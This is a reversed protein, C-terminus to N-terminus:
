KLADMGIDHCICECRSTCENHKHKSCKYSYSGTPSIWRGRMGVRTHEEGITMEGVEKLLFRLPELFGLGILSTKLGDQSYFIYSYSIYLQFSYELYM